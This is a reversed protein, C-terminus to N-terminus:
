GCFACISSHRWSEEHLIYEGRFNIDASAIIALYIGMILDSGALHRLYMSHEENGRTKSAFYRGMLVLLNGAIAIFTM